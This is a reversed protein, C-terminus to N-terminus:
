AVRRARVLAKRTMADVLRFYKRQVRRVVEKENRGRATSEIKWENGAAEIGAEFESDVKRMWVRRSSGAPAREAVRHLVADLERSLEGTPNFNQVEAQHVLMRNEEKLEGSCHNHWSYQQTSGSLIIQNKQAKRKFITRNPGFVPSVDVGVM